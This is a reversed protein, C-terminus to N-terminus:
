TGPSTPRTARVRVLRVAAATVNQVYEAADPDGPTDLLAIMQSVTVAEGNARHAVVHDPEGRALSDALARRLDSDVAAGRNVAGAMRVVAWRSWTAVPLGEAAREVSRAEDPTLSLMVHARGDAGITLPRTRRPPM